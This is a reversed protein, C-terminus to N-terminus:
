MNRVMISIVLTPAGHRWVGALVAAKEFVTVNMGIRHLTSAAKLGAMGAGIIAINVNSMRPM